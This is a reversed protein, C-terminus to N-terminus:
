RKILNTLREKETDILEYSIDLPKFDLNTEVFPASMIKGRSVNEEYTKAKERIPADDDSFAPFIQQFNLPFEFSNGPNKGDTATIKFITGPRIM